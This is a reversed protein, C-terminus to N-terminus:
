CNTMSCFGNVSSSVKLQLFAMDSLFAATVDAVTASPLWGFSLTESYANAVFMRCELASEDNGEFYRPGIFALLTCAHRHSRIKMFYRVLSAARDHEDTLHIARKLHSQMYWAVMLDVLQDSLVLADSARRSLSLQVRPWTSRIMAEIDNVLSSDSKMGYLRVAIAKAASLTRLVSPAATATKGNFKALGLVSNRLLNSRSLLLDLQPSLCFAELFLNVTIPTRLYTRIRQDNLKPEPGGLLSEYLLRLSLAAPLERHKRNRSHLPAGITKRSTLASRPQHKRVRLRRKLPVKARFLADRALLTTHYNQFFNVSASPLGDQRLQDQLELPGPCAGSASFAEGLFRIYPDAHFKSLSTMDAAILHESLIDFDNETAAFEALGAIARALDDKGILTSPWPQRGFDTMYYLTHTFAYEDSSTFRTTELPPKLCGRKAVEIMDQRPFPQKFFLYTGHLLDLERFPLRESPTSVLFRALRELDREEEPIIPIHRRVLYFATLSLTALEPFRYAFAYLM